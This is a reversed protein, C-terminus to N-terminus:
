IQTPIKITTGPTIKKEDIIQNMLMILETDVHNRRAIGSLTDGKQITYTVTEIDKMDEPTQEEPFISSLLLRSISTDEHLIAPMKRNAMGTHIQMGIFFTLVAAAMVASIQLGYRKIMERLRSDAYRARTYRAATRGGAITGSVIKRCRNKLGPIHERICRCVASIGKALFRGAAAAASGAILAADIIVSGTKKVMPIFSGSHRKNIFDNYNFIESM